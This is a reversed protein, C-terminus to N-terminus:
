GLLAQWSTADYKSKLTNFLQLATKGNKISIMPDPEATTGIEYDKYLAQYNKRFVETESAPMIYNSTSLLDILSKSYPCLLDYVGSYDVDFNRTLGTEVIFEELSKQTTCYQLFTKALEKREEPVYASIFALQNLSDVLTTKEGVQEATAKPLPMIKINREQLSMGKYSSMEEFTAQAENVWYLGEVLMGVPNEGPTNSSYLFFSQADMHSLNKNFSKSHYYNGKYIKEFFDFTYYYSASSYVEYGNQQTIRVPDRYTINGNADISEVLKTATGDFDYANMAEDGDFDARLEKAFRTMYFEYQGSWLMPAVGRTKMTDCLAYFEEYTAPLGDDYTGAVDDVGKSLGSDTSKKNFKGDASLYLKKSNFLDADYTILTPSQAHPLGYYKGNETKYFDVQSDYLKDEISGTEGYETLPETVIDTIDLFYGQSIADYYNVGELFYVDEKANGLKSGLETIGSKHNTVWVQVGKTGPIFEYDKYDEEFRKIHADLWDHGVGGNFNSVHLQVKTKDVPKDASGSSSPDGCGVVPVCAIAALALALGKRLFKNM